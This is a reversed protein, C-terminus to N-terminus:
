DLRGLRVLFITQSNVTGLDIPGSFPIALRPQPNFGDLTNIVDIDACDTPRVACDPKPLNVQVGTKHGDDFVTFRDSPFPGGTPSSLDFLAQVGAGLALSPVLLLIALGTVLTSSWSRMTM